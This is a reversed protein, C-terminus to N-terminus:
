RRGKLSRFTAFADGLQEVLAAKCEDCLSMQGRQGDAGARRETAIVTPVSRCRVRYGRRPDGIEGGMVFPGEGPKEAQCRERDPPVLKTKM